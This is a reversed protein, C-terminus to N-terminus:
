MLRAARFIPSWPSSTVRRIKGASPESPLQNIFNLRASHGEESPM